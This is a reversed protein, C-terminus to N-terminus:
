WPVVFSWNPGRFYYGMIILALMTLGFLTFFINPWLRPPAFWVGQGRPSRDMYPILILGVVIFTPILVGGWLASYSVMEQLGLFYWPAKAPNTPHNPNAVEELPANFLLSIGIIIVLVAIFLVLSRMLLHPWAFVAEEPGGVDVGPARKRMLMMLGYSKNPDQPFVEQEKDKYYAM